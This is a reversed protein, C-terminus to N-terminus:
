ISYEIAKHRLPRVLTGSSLRKGGLELHRRLMSRARKVNRAEIASLISSHEEVSSDYDGSILLGLEIYHRLLNRIQLLFNLLQGNHSAKALAIHFSLDATVIKNFHKRKSTMETLYYRLEKIDAASAREAALEVIAEELICRSEVLEQIRDPELPVRRNFPKALLEEKSVDVYTGSGPRVVLVGMLSLSGLAERISSRGVGFLKMLKREPPLKDGFKLKNSELLAVLQDVIEETLRKGRVPTVRLKASLTQGEM